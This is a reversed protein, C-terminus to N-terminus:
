DKISSHHGEYASVAARRDTDPGEEAQSHVWESLSDGENIVTSVYLLLWSLFIVTSEITDM